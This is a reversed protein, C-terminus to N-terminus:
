NIILAHIWWAVPKTSGIKQIKHNGGRKIVVIKIFASGLLRWVFERHSISTRWGCICDDCCGKIVTSTRKRHPFSLYLTFSHRSAKREKSDFSIRFLTFTSNNHSPTIHAVIEHYEVGLEYLIHVIHIGHVFSYGCTPYCKGCSSIM